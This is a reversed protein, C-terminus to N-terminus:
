LRLPNACIHVLENTVLSRNLLRRRCPLRIEFREAKKLFASQDDGPHYRFMLGLSGITHLSHDYLPLLVGIRKGDKQVESVPAGAKM